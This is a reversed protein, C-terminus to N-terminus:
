LLILVFGSDLSVLLVSWGVLCCFLCAFFFFFLLSLRLMCLRPEACWEFLMCQTAISRSMWWKWSAVKIAEVREAISGNGNDFLLANRCRLLNWVVAACVM